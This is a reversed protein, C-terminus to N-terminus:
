RKREALLRELEAVRAEAVDRGAHAADKARREAELERRAAEKEHREAEVERRAAERARRETEAMGLATEEPTLWVRAGEPDDSIRIPDSWLWAAIADSHAPGAGFHVRELRSGSRVWQQIVVPGGRAAPGYLEPDLVWLERTGSAAYREQIEDYDKCPHNPSVIEVALRPPAHGPKWTCLSTLESPSAPAPVVLMVDPDIGVSPRAPDWRLALNRAVIADLAARKVWAELLATLYRALLDHARSEPVSIEPLVWTDTRPEMAVVHRSESM